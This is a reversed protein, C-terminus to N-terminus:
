VVDAGMIGLFNSTASWPPGGTESGWRMVVYYGVVQGVKVDWPLTLFFPDGPTDAPDTFDRARVKGILRTFKMPDAGALHYPHIVSIFMDINSEFGPEVIACSYIEAANTEASIEKLWFSWPQFTLDWPPLNIQEERVVLAAVNSKLYLAWPNVHKRVFDRCRFTEVDSREEWFTYVPIAMHDTWYRGLALMAQAPKNLFGPSKHGKVFSRGWKGRGTDGMNVVNYGEQGPTRDPLSGSYIM